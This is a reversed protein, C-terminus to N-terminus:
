SSVNRPDGPAVEMSVESAVIFGAVGYCPYLSVRINEGSKELALGFIVNQVSFDALELDVVKEM